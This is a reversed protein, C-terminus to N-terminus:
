DPCLEVVKGLKRKFHLPGNNVLHTTRNTKNLFLKSSDFHQEQNSQKESVKLMELATEATGLM